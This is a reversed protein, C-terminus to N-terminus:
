ASWRGGCARRGDSWHRASASRPAARLSAAPPTLGAAAGKRFTLNNTQPNFQSGACGYGGRNCSGHETSHRRVSLDHEDSALTPGYLALIRGLACGHSLWMLLRGIRNFGSAPKKQRERSARPRACPASSFRRSSHRSKGSGQSVSVLASRRRATRHSGAARISLGGKNKTPPLNPHMLLSRTM